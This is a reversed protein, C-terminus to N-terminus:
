RQPKTLVVPVRRRGWGEPPGDFRGPLATGCQLCRGDDSLRYVGLEYWDREIVETGCGPCYSSSGESDHVNGTYVHRLGHQLAIQRARQLTAPPTHPVDLMKFDPHFATFHLPVDAGLERRMWEALRHLEDDDDNHGPILLTTVEFWVDTEHRLYVLTELVPELHAVTV